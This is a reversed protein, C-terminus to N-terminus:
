DGEAEQASRVTRRIEPGLLGSGRAADILENLDDPDAGEEIMTRAAWYLMANRQGEPAQQMHNIIGDFLPVSYLKGNEFPKKARRRENKRRIIARKQEDLRRELIEHLRAPMEMPPGDGPQLEWHYRFGTPHLSPPAVVYGGKAKFDLGPALKTTTWSFDLWDAYWLHYGRATKAVWRWPLFDDDGVLARWSKAGDEGDIDVVYYPCGTLIGVGTTFENGFAAPIATARTIDYFDKIGHPHVRGNPAKGTLAIISLGRSVYDFAATLLNM